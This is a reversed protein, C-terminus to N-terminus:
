VRGGSPSVHGFVVDRLGQAGHIHETKPPEFRYVEQWPEDAGESRLITFRKRDVNILTGTPSAVVKRATMWTPASASSSRWAPM